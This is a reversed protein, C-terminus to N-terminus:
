LVIKTNEGEVCVIYVGNQMNKIELSNNLFFQNVIMGTMSLIYGKQISNTKNQILISGRSARLNYNYESNVTSVKADIGYVHKLIENAYREGLVFQSERNFHPDTYDDNIPTLGDTIARSSYPIFSSITDIMANFLNMRNKRDTDIYWQALQGACFFINDKELDNRYDTVMKSLQAPYKPIADLQSNREGQHWLIGKIEGWKKAELSRRLSSSYYGSSNGKLWAEIATGGRANVILGIPHQTETIIKKVFTYAPNIQQLNLAKRVESYKNLPNSAIEWNSGPTLLYANNIPNLDGQEPIMVGRGAMNSQGICLFLDLKPLVEFTIKYQITQMGDGSTCNIITTRENQTGSLSTAGIVTFNGTGLVKGTVVPVQMTSYPLYQYYSYTDISYNEIVTGDFKIEEMRADNNGGGRYFVIKYVINRDGNTVTVTATRETETGSLNTASTVSVTTGEKSEYTISPFETNGTNFPLKYTYSLTSPSFGNLISGAVSLSNLYTNEPFEDKVLSINALHMVNGSVVNNHAFSLIYSEETIVTFNVTYKTWDTNTTASFSTGLPRSVINDESEIASNPVGAGKTLNVSRLWGSGKLWFSLLYNGPELYMAGSSFYRSSGSSSNRFTMKIANLGNYTETSKSFYYAEDSVNTGLLFEDPLITGATWQSMNGNNVLNNQAGLPLLIFIFLGIINKKM